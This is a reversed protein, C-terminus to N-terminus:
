DAKPLTAAYEADTKYITKGNGTVNVQKLGYSGMSLSPGGVLLGEDVYVESSAVCDRVTIKTMDDPDPSKITKQYVVIVEDEVTWYGYYEVRTNEDSNNYVCFRVYGDKYLTLCGYRMNGAGLDREGTLQYGIEKDAYKEAAFQDNTYSTWHEAQQEPSKIELGWGESGGCAAFGMAALAVVVGAVLALFAKKFRNM